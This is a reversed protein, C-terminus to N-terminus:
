VASDCLEYFGDSSIRLNTDPLALPNFALYLSRADTGRVMIRCNGDTDFNIYSEPYLAISGFETSGRRLTLTVTFVPLDPVISATCNNFVTMPEESSPDPTKGQDLLSRQISNFVSRPVRPLVMAQINWFNVNADVNIDVGTNFHLRLDPDIGYPFRIISNEVCTSNFFRSTSGLLLEASGNRAQIVAVSGVSATLAERPGLSLFSSSTPSPGVIGSYRFVEQGHIEIEFESWCLASDYTLSPIHTEGGVRVVAPSNYLDLSPTSLNAVHWGLSNKSLPIRLDVPSASTRMIILVLFLLIGNLM